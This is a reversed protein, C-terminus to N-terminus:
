EEDRRRGHHVVYAFTAVGGVLFTLAMMEFVPVSIGELGGGDGGVGVQFTAEMGQPRHGPVNCWFLGTEDDAFVFPGIVVFGGGSILPDHKVNPHGGFSLNHDFTGINRVLFKVPQNRPLLLPNPLVVWEDLEILFAAKLVMTGVMGQARATPDTPGYTVNTDVSVTPATFNLWASGFPQVTVNQDIPVDIQFTYAGSNNNWILLRVVEGTTANLVRPEISWPETANGGFERLEVDEYPPPVAPPGYIKPHAGRPFVHITARMGYHGVGCFEACQDLYDGPTDAILWGTNFRGPVADVKIGLQPVAFSHIVDLSTVRFHVVIDEQIWLEGSTNTGDEYIFKWSFRQAQVTVTTDAPPPTDTYLLVPFSIATILILIVTPFVTWVFEIRRSGEVHHPEPSVSRRYRYMFWFLAGFVIAAVLLAFWTIAWFLEQIQREIPGTAASASNVTLLFVLSGVLGAFGRRVM